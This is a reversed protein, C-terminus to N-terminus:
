SIFGSSFVGGGGDYSIFESWWVVGLSSHQSKGCRLVGREMKDRGVVCEWWVCSMKNRGVGCEWWVRNMENRGVGCEWWVRNMKDIGVGSKWWVRNMETRGNGSEWVGWTLFFLMDTYGVAWRTGFFYHFGFTPMLIRCKKLVIGSTRVACTLFLVEFGSMCVVCTLFLVDFGSMCVASTLFLVEFGSM